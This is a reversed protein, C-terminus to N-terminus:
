RVIFRWAEIQCPTADQMEAGGKGLGLQAEEERSVSIRDKRENERTSPGM